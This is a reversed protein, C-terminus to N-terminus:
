MTTSLYNITRCTIVFFAGFKHCGISPNLFSVLPRPEGSNPEPHKMTVICTKYTDDQEPPFSDKNWVPSGNKRKTQNSNMKKLTPVLLGRM